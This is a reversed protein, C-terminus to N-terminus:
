PRRPVSGDNVIAAIHHGVDMGNQVRHRIESLPQAAAGPLTMGAFPDAIHDIDADAPRVKPRDHGVFRQPVVALPGHRQAEHGIDIARIEGLRHAIEIRGLRQENDGGLGEGCQLGHRMGRAIPQQGAESTLFRGDGSM